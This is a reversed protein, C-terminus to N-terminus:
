YGCSNLTLFQQYKDINKQLTNLKRKLTNVKRFDAMMEHDSRYAKWNSKKDIMEDIELELTELAEKVIIKGKEM